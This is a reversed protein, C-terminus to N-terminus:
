PRSLRLLPTPYGLGVLTQIAPVQSQYSEAANFTM